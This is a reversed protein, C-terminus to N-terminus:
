GAPILGWRAMVVEREGDRPDIRHSSLGRRLGGRDQQTPLATIRAELDAFGEVAEFLQRAAFHGARRHKPRTTTDKLM